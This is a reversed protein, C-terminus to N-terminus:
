YTDNGALNTLLRRVSDVRQVASGGHNPAWLNLACEPELHTCGRPCDQTAEEIDPFAHIVQAPTVHALGLSRIGPTDIVWGGLPLRLAIASTSTHRGRGTVVNVGGTRRDADPILTNVLTSKGVGSQGVFVTRRDQLHELLEETAHGREITVSTIGLGAYAQQLPGPDTLDPKTLVLLPEMGAVLAAVLFRDILRPRPEPDALSTVIALQDANAVIIREVADTDDATRRLITTREDVRVIRAMSGEQGSHEGVLAVRDGVVVGKRGLERAKIAFVTRIEGDGEIVVTFRGRDVTIVMGDIASDHAPRDKSRPRSKGRGPRIRIDDEDLSQRQRNM